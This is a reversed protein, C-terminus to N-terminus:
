KNIFYYNISHNTTANYLFIWLLSAQARKQEDKFFDFITQPSVPLWITTAAGLVVDSSPKGANTSKRVAVRIGSESFGAVTICPHANATSVTACFNTIMRQGLKMMSKRGDPILNAGGPERTLTDLFFSFRECVRQLTAIWREAGFAFGSNILDTYLLHPPSRDHIEVREVWIVKSFGNPIDQILCGSPLRHSLHRSSFQHNCPFDCSVDAIIWLGQQVQQCYRLFFFERTPVLPSLVQVEAHMLHLAGNQNGLLGPSLVQITRAASVITPFLEMWTNSNMFMGVLAISNMLVVGSDRSSEVRSNPNMHNNARRFMKHYMDLNLVQRGDTASKVWLPEDTQLLRHVEEAANAAITTMISKQTDSLALVPQLQLNNLASSTSGAPLDLNLSPGHMGKGGFSGMSLDLSSINIPQVPPLQTVPRGIYNAAISSVRDLEEKLQANDLRLKREDFFSDEQLDPPAGCNPCIINRLAERMAINECRIKDNEARLVCNGARELQGKLQTRRNQFWFKIQRPALELDRSLQQRQKDDPHPCEKFAEELRQIQHATHRHYHKKKMKEEQNPDAAQEPGGLGFDEM